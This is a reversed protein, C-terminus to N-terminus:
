YGKIDRSNYHLIM